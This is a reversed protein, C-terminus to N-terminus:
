KSSSEEGRGGGKLITGDSSGKYSRIMYRMPQFFFKFSIGTSLFPTLPQRVRHRASKVRVARLLNYPDYNCGRVIVKFGGISRFALDLLESLFLFVM